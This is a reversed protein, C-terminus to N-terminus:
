KSRWRYHFNGFILVGVLMLVAVGPHGKRTVCLALATDAKLKDKLGGGDGYALDHQLCCTHWSGEPFRTCEFDM